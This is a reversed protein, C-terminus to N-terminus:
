GHDYATFDHDLLLVYFIRGRRYGIMPRMGNYRIALLVSDGPVFSPVSTKLSARGLKETGIGHRPANQIERWTMKSLLFIRRAVAAQNDADCCNVSYGCGDQMQEFSFIPPMTDPNEAASSGVTKPLHPKGGKNRMKM